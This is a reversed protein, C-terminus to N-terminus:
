SDAHPQVSYRPRAPAPAGHTPLSWSDFDTPTLWQRGPHWPTWVSEVALSLSDSDLAVYQPMRGYDQESHYGPDPNGWFELVTTPSPTVLHVVAPSGMVLHALSPSGM